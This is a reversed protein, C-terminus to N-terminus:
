PELDTGGTNYSDPEDSECYQEDDTDLAMKNFVSQHLRVDM